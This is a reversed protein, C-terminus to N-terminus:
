ELIGLHNLEVSLLFPKLECKFAQLSDSDGFTLNKSIVIKNWLYPGRYSICYQSFNTRCLPEQISYENRLAYKTKTRHTFINRFIPPNLNQKCKYMFCLINFINLKFINLAKMDNSLPSAHTYRDKHYIVRAAHKQCCYLRELKRKSTSTWVINGYNVYSHIFSFYLQNLCQKSLVNIRHERSVNM